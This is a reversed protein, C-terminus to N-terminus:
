LIYKIDYFISYIMYYKTISINAVTIFFNFKFLTNIYATNTM